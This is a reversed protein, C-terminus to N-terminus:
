RILTGRTTIRSGDDRQLSFTYTGSPLARGQADRGDWSTQETERAVGQWLTTVRRGGVDYIELLGSRHEGLSFDVRVRPNFPNPYLRLTPDGAIFLPVGSPDGVLVNTESLVVTDYEGGGPPLLLVSVSGLGSTGKTDGQVTWRFLEGPGVAWDGAGLIVVYGYWQGPNAPDVERFDSFLNYGNFVLGPGGDVVSIINSDYSIYLEITRVDLTDDLMVSLTTQHGLDITTDAPAWRLVPDAVAPVSSIGLLIVILLWRNM